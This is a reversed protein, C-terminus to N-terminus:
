TFEAELDHYFNQVISGESDFAWVPGPDFVSTSLASYLNSSQGGHYDAAFQYIAVEGDTELIELEMEPWAARLYSMMEDHTPDQM